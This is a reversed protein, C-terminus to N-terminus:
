GAANQPMAAADMWFVEWVYGDPDEVSQGYMFGHDQQPNPDARGGAAAAQAVITDVAAKADVTIALLAQSERRADGIPRQTFQGYHAHTLLMVGITDSLMMSSSHEGSFQ